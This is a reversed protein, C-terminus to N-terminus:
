VVVAVLTTVVVEVTAALVTPGEVVGATVVVVAAGFKVLADKLMTVVGARVVFISGVVVVM